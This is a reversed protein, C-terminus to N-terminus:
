DALDASPHRRAHRAGWWLAAVGVLLSGIGAIAIAVTGDGTNPLTPAAAATPNTAAPAARELQEGQVQVPNSITLPPPIETPIEITTPPPGETVTFPLPDFDYSRLGDLEPRDIVCRVVLDYEGPIAVNNAPITLTGSWAGGETVPLRGLPVDVGDRTLRVLVETGDYTVDEAAPVLPPAASPDLAPATTASTEVPTPDAPQVWQCLSTSSSAVRVTGGGLGSEPVRSWGADAAAPGAGLATVFLAFTAGVVSGVMVRRRRATTSELLQRV